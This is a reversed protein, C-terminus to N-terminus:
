SLCSIIVTIRPAPDREKISSLHVAGEGIFFKHAFGDSGKALLYGDGRLESEPKIRIGAFLGSQLTARLLLSTASAESLRSRTLAM